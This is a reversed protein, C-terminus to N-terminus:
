RGLIDTVPRNLHCGRGASGSGYIRREAIESM